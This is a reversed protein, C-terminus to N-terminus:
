GSQAGTAERYAHFIAQAIAEHRPDLSPSAAGRWRLAIALTRLEPLTLTWPGRDTLNAEFKLRNAANVHDTSHFVNQKRLARQLTARVYPGQVGHTPQVEHLGDVSEVLQTQMIDDHCILREEPDLVFDADTLEHGCQTCVYLAGASQYNGRTCEGCIIPTFM